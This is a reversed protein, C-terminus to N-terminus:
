SFITDPLTPCFVIFVVCNTWFHAVASSKDHTGNWEAGANACFKSSYRFGGCVM